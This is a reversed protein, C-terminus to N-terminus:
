RAGSGCEPCIALQTAAYGCNPCRQKWIRCAVRATALFWTVAAVVASAAIVFAICSLLLEPWRLGYVFQWRDRRTGIRAPEASSTSTILIGDRRIAAGGQTGRLPWGFSAVEVHEIPIAAARENLVALQAEAWDPMPKVNNREAANKYLDDWAAYEPDSAYAVNYIRVAFPSETYNYIADTESDKIWGGSFTADSEIYQILLQGVSAAGIGAISGALLVIRWKGLCKRCTLQFTSTSWFSRPEM